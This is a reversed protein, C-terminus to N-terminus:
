AAKRERTGTDGEDDAGEVDDPKGLISEPEKGVTEDADVSAGVDRGPERKPVYLVDTVGEGGVEVELPEGQSTENTSGTAELDLPLESHFEQPEGGRGPDPTGRPNQM